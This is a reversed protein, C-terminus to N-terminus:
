MAEIIQVIQLMANNKPLEFEYQILREFFEIIYLEIICQRTGWCEGGFERPKEPIWDKHELYITKANIPLNKKALKYSSVLIERAMKKEFDKRLKEEKRKNGRKFTVGIAYKRFREETLFRDAKDRFIKIEEEEEPLVKKERIRENRYNSFMEYIDTARIDQEVSVIALFHVMSEILKKNPSKLSFSQFLETMENISSQLKNEINNTAKNM